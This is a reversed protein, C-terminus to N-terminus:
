EEDEEEHEMPPLDVDENENLFIGVNAGKDVFWRALEYGFLDGAQSGDGYFVGVTKEIDVKEGEEQESPLIAVWFSGMDIAPSRVEYLSGRKKRQPEKEM